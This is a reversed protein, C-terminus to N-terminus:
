LGKFSFMYLEHLLFCRLIKWLALHFTFFVLSLQLYTIYLSVKLAMLYNNEILTYFPFARPFLPLSCVHSFYYGWWIRRFCFRIVFSLNSWNLPFCSKPSLFFAFCNRMSLHQLCCRMWMLYMYAQIMFSSIDTKTIITPFSYPSNLIM